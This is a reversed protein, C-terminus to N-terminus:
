PRITEANRVWRLTSAWRSLLRIGIISPIDPGMEEWYTFTEPNFIMSEEDVPNNMYETNFAKSGLQGMEVDDIEVVAASGAMLSSQRADDEEKNAEYFALADAKATRIKASLTFLAANAGM